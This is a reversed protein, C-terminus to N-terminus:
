SQVYKVSQELTGTTQSPLDWSPQLQPKNKTIISLDLMFKSSNYCSGLEFRALKKWCEKRDRQLNKDMSHGQDREIVGSFKLVGRAKQKWLTCFSILTLVHILPVNAINQSLNSPFLYLSFVFFIKRHKVNRLLKNVNCYMGKTAVTVNRSFDTSRLSRTLYTLCLAKLPVIICIQFDRWINLNM